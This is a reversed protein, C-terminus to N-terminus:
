CGEPRVYEPWSTGCNENMHEYPEITNFGTLHVRYNGLLQCYPLDPDADVCAQPREWNSDYLNMQYVDQPGFETTNIVMDGFLGGAKYMAAVYSSCVWSRGDRPTIGHYVWGDQEPMAQVDQVSMGQRAAEAAVGSIDLDLDQTGLRFNLAETYTMAIDHPLIAEVVSGVIPLLENPLIGPLNSRETDIWGYLFNHYGYPLGETENFFAIAKERDFQARIDERMSLHVVHFDAAEAQKIWDAWLTRQLGATPWYWADQSEVVYLEGDFRMAMTNHGIASGTGYMIIQDLGDLRMIAFMDGDQILDPDIEVKKIEREVLNLGMAESLFEVNAKEMYKPVHSNIIPLHQHLGLGGLFCKAMKFASELSEVLGDCFEFVKIGGFGMDTKGDATPTKFQLTHDGSFAFVEIHFIETNGFLFAERCLLGTKKGTKIHINVTDDSVQEFAFDISEFCRSESYTYTTSSPKLTSVYVPLFQGADSPDAGPERNSCNWIPPEDGLNSKKLNRVTETMHTIHDFQQSYDQAFDLLPATITKFFGDGNSFHTEVLAGNADKTIAPSDSILQQAFGTTALATAVFSRM